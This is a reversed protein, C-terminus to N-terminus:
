GVCAPLDALSMIVLDPVVGAVRPDGERCRLSRADGAFLATRFGVRSAPQIDNLMDNGVYLVEGARIDRRALDEVALLYLEVDPKARGHQYSYYQLQQDISFGGAEAELLLRWLERTLFQANSILGLLLGAAHLQQLCARAQPMPWVPNVRMEYECALQQLRSEPLVEGQVAGAAGPGAPEPLLGNQRLHALTGRWIQRIDVEPFPIGAAQGRRHDAAIQDELVQVGGDPDGELPLGVAALAAALAPGKAVGQGTTVDGSASILLTGYIDFLVARVGTLPRLRPAVATPLPEMPQLHRRIIPDLSRSM